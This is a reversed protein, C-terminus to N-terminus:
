LIAIHIHIFNWSFVSTIYLIYLNWMGVAFNDTYFAWPISPKDPVCEMATLIKMSNSIDVAVFYDEFFLNMLTM